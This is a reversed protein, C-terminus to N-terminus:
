VRTGLRLLAIGQKTIACPLLASWWPRLPRVVYHGARGCGLRVQESIADLIGRQTFHRVLLILEAFWPPISPVAQLNTHIDVPAPTCAPM